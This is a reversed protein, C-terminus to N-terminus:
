RTPFPHKDRVARSAAYAPTASTPALLLARRVRASRTRADRRARRLARVRQALEVEPGSPRDRSLDQSLLNMEEAGTARLCPGEAPVTSGTDVRHAAAMATM